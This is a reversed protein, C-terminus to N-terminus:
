KIRKGSKQVVAIMHLQKVETDKQNMEGVTSERQFVILYDDRTKFVM